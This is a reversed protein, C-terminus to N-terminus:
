KVLKSESYGCRECKTHRELEGVMAYRGPPGSTEVRFSLEGCRPCAEGPCRALKKELESVRTALADFTEPMDSLRKWKPWQELIALLDKIAFM